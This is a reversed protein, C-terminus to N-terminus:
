AKFISDQLWIKNNDVVSGPYGQDNGNECGIQAKYIADIKINVKSQDANSDDERQHKRNSTGESSSFLCQLV